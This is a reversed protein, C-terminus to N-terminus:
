ILAEGSNLAITERTQDRLRVIEHWDDGAAPNPAIPASFTLTVHGPRPLMTKDRLIQRAGRVSVACIPRQADVAAKFAGLQFPRIGAVATFTGEPFIVVSEGNRLAANVEESQRIRAQPDSRDFAFQGSRDALTSMFPMARIEGKAVFRVDDPLFALMVLIDLYSSHNPAFIWPGTKARQELIEAGVITVPVGGAALMRRAGQHVLSAARRRNRTRGVVLWLPILIVAFATLAYVGYLFEVASRATRQLWSWARPAAGRVALKAIQVWPAQQKQGLKGEIFLRRTESRRLKGSSTKPISQPPLLAIVDPPMGLAEDVARAIEAEITKASAMDRLEAAVVLRETGSREDPAGFAVVCGTRVGAIRGAIEEVEHPYLNRGAKIIVDKARGTIYIEGEGWYALDGSDIWNGDRLLERTAEANRYYGSTASPGRFWLRGERREGLNVGDADVIRVEVSPVPKGANVFELAAADADAVPVARGASEFQAREIRDVKFGTGLRPVSVALTAEALGYVPMLAERRFGYPAFRKAFREMTEARVPEAGNTAARWSSLDLGELDKDAIKRVCLEYAFNPAPCITARHRHIARLWREPRSLFALPSMVVLPIGTFLPVFWAGILGMDHYLPLWSVCADNAQIDIGSIIARINALLNAHTLVVGKPDGTSGSTYQLFAIDEGRAHHSLHQVPRWEGAAEQPNAPASALKQANLVERLSPVRPQLLKALNEAQRWTVLFQAEANRLINSQRAAYEAIRDARFPPYIPVPIGGALLIGAFTWFFEACTPLMIGVTQAPELGRRRLDAAVLSAREYLEGFTITRLQEDEEYIQIHSRGPEGRGRLRLIESLTEAKNIQEEIDPRTAPSSSVASTSTAVSTPSSSSPAAVVAATGHAGLAGAGNGDGGADARLIADVLDQVTDAEAVVRDPLRVGCSDGLRLMLEVRELSGLGLERELHAKTGRAVLEEMGRSSGLELLLQRVSALAQAAVAPKRDLKTGTAGMSPLPCNAACLQAGRRPLQKPSGVVALRGM